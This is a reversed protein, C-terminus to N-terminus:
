TNAKRRYQSPDIKRKRRAWERARYRAACKSRHYEQRPHVTYFLRGCEKCTKKHLLKERGVDEVLIRGNEKRYKLRGERAWKYLTNPKVRVKNGLEKLTVYRNGM